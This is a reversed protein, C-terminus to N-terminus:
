RKAKVKSYIVPMQERVLYIGRGMMLCGWVSKWQLIKLAIRLSISDFAKADPILEQFLPRFFLERCWQKRESLSLNAEKSCNRVLASLIYRGYLGGLVARVEQDDMQWKQYQRFIMDIRWEHLEYYNEVFKNTLNSEVRKAYHYPTIDLLNMTEIDMCYEVNFKIDEILKVDTYKLKQSKVRDLRYFKNWAYGYLTQQELHIMEKRIDEARTFIKKQPCIRHTYQLTGNQDYYEEWLGFVVVEAANIELSEAVKQMLQSEVWDDPDMFWIYDGCAKQIGTNRAESLGRNKEHHIVKIRSDTEAIKEAIVASKDPTCDDVVILEWEAFTQEQISQIAHEIYKEVGYTPMVVSFVPKM